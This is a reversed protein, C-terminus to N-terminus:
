SAKFNENIEEKKNTVNSKNKLELELKNKLVIPCNSFHGLAINQHCCKWFRYGQFLYSEEEIENSCNSM